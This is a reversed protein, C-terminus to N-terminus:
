RAAEAFFKKFMSVDRPDPSSEREPHWMVARVPLAAHAFAEISLYTATALPLLGDALDEKRIVKEHYSNVKRPSWLDSDIEHRAAVHVTTDCMSLRGGFYSNIFQAGRCIGFVPLGRALAMDLISAETEDRLPARGPTEGGTLIFADLEWAEAYSKARKGLNPVPMWPWGPLSAELFGHWEHALADRVETYGQAQVIRCTLGIRM